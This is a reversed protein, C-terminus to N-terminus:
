AEEKLHHWDKDKKDKNNKTRGDDKQITTVWAILNDM